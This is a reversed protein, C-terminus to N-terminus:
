FNIINYLLNTKSGLIMENLFNCYPGDASDCKHIENHQKEFNKHFYLNIDMKKEFRDILFQMPDKAVNISFSMIGILIIFIGIKNM